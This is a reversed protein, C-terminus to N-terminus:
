NQKRIFLFDTTKPNYNKTAVEEFGFPALSKTLPELGLHAEGIIVEVQSLFEPYNQIIDGLIDYEAGEVDIKLIVNEKAPWTAVISELITSTKKITIEKEIVRHMEEPAYSKLFEYSTTCIGDRHPLYYCKLQAYQKGLGFNFLKIKDRLNYNLTTNQEALKFTFENLEFGYVAKCWPQSAFYISAYGRNMGIDFVVYEKQLLYKPHIFYIHQAFIERVIWPYEPTTFFYLADKKLYIFNEARDYRVIEINHCVLTPYIRSFETGELEPYDEIYFRGMRRYLADFIRNIWKNKIHSLSKSLSINEM